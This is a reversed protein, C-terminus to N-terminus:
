FDKGFQPNVVVDGPLALTHQSWLSHLQACLDDHDTYGILKVQEGITQNAKVMSQLSELFEEVDRDRDEATYVVHEDDVLRSFGLLPTALEVTGYLLPCTKDPSTLKYVSRQYGRSVGGVTAKTEFTVDTYALRTCAFTSTCGKKPFVVTHVGVFTSKDGIPPPRTELSRRYGPFSRTIYNSYYGIAAGTGNCNKPTSAVGRLVVSGAM